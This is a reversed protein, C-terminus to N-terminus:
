MAPEHCRAGVLARPIVAAISTRRLPTRMRGFNSLAFFAPPHQRRLTSRPLDIAAFKSAFHLADFCM